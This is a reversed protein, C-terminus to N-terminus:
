RLAPGSFCSILDRLRGTEGVRITISRTIVDADLVPGEIGSPEHRATVGIRVPGSPLDLTAAAQQLPRLRPDHAPKDTASAVHAAVAAHDPPLVSVITRGAPDYVVPLRQEQWNLLWLQRGDQQTTLLEGRRERILRTLRNLDGNSMDTRYREAARQRAHRKAAQQSRPREVDRRYRIKQGTRGKRRRAM